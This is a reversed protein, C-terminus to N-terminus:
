VNEALRFGSFQWRKEPPFFNRYTTRIHSRPTVASGGRLVMQNSMFKGNYEGLAGDPQVYGPYPEYSSTTWEWVNGLLNHMESSETSRDTAYPHFYGDELFHGENRHGYRAAAVEWEFETPLRRGAWRAYAAAEYYSVHMVPEDPSLPRMGALTYVMFSNDHREWYLPFEWREREIIDWAASHWFRHDQYGGDHIFSLYELNTIPRNALRFANLYRKHCPFENDYAFGEGVAGVEYTGESFEIFRLNPEALGGAPGEDTLAPRFPNTGYAHKLDTLLLEQHQQEHNCGVLVLPTIAAFTRDDCERIFDAVRLTIRHRYAIVEAVTPRCLSGRRDRPLFQGLSHYYSNFIYHYRPDVPRYDDDHEQLVVREFFWTTHGLHWKAPSTDPSSQMVFDEPELNRCVAETTRRITVFLDALDLRAMNVQMRTQIPM